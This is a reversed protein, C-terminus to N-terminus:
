DNAGDAGGAWSSTQETVPVRVVKGDRVVILDTGTQRAVQRAWQAERRMAMFSGNLSANGGAPPPGFVSLPKKTTEPITMARPVFEVTPQVLRMIGIQGDLRLGQRGWRLYTPRRCRYEPSAKHAATWASLRARMLREIQEQRRAWTIRRQRIGTMKVCLGRQGGTRMGSVGNFQGPSV